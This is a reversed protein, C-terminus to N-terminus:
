PARRSRRWAFLLIAAALFSLAWPNDIPIPQPPTGPAGLVDTDSGGAVSPAAPDSASATNVIQLATLSSAFRVPLSYVLRNGPGAALMAGTATFSTGGAAGTISGCTASGTAVCTVNATLTVGSPLTDTVTTDNADAPGSNTVTITYTTTAGPLYTGSGDTKVIALDAVLNIADTDTAGNNGPIPDTVGVPVAITATNAISGTAGSGVTANATFTAAGGVLLNVSASINGSSSAPCSSGVSAACTWSGITLGAPATDTVTAGTVAGPGNNSAVITYVTGAGADISAVGDTKSIALDAQPTLTDTDTASNNGPNTETVGVPATVTATNVPTGTASTSITAVLTFTASGGALLDVSAGISGSGSAPCSSGPSASCTWTASTIAPSLTDTLTAGTLDSPGNNTAVIAYTTSTGPVANAVGDTKTIALDAQPTLSDTDSASTAPNTDIVSGPVALSATNTISGVAIAASVTFTVSGGNLVTVSTAIPGSGSAPCASGASAACTWSTFTM